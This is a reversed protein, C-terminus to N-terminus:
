HSLARTQTDGQSSVQRICQRRFSSPTQTQPYETAVHRFETVGRPVEHITAKKHNVAKKCSGYHTQTTTCFSPCIVKDDSAM